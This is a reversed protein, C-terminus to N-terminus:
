SIGQNQNKSKEHLSLLLECSCDDYVKGVQHNVENTLRKIDKVSLTPEDTEFYVAVWMHRGTRTVDVHVPTIKEEEMVHRCIEKITDVTEEDPPFLFIDCVADRLMRINQPMMMVVVVVAVIPDFYPSLFALPTRKLFTSLYFAIALGMSYAIDLRWEMLEAEVTPSNISHNMRKIVFYIVVSLIALFLQFVSIMGEDVVNGGSFASEIIEASVGLTVSLMMIGKIILFISEIQFYGYPHKESVPKYFLPTIFLILAIFIEESADYVADMLVSQSSSYIAFLFEAVACILGMVFSIWLIRKERKESAVM